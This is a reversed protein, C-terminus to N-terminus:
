FVNSLIHYVMNCPSIIILHPLSLLFIIQNHHNHKKAHISSKGETGEIDTKDEAVAEQKYLIIICIKWHLVDVTRIWM